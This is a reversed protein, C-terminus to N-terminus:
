KGKQPIERVPSSASGGLSSTVTIEKPNNAVQIFKGIYIGNGGSSLTGIMKGGSYYAQVTDWAGSPSEDSITAQVVLLQDKPYYDVLKIGVTNGIPAPATIGDTTAGEPTLLVARYTGNQRDLAYAVIQGKDNIANASLLWYQEGAKGILSNLNRMAKKSPNSVDAVFAAQKIAIGDGAPLYSYGVVQDTSNIGLVASYDADRMGNSLSGLDILKGGRYFFAHTRNDTLSMESHGVVHNYANVALGYSSVGGLTQLDVTPTVYREGMPPIQYLFAHTAGILGNATQSNGTVFGADNIAHAQAYPGGLTGIDVMGTLPSFVFARSDAIDAKPGSFGVVQGFTNIGNARSYVGGKLAGLDTITGGKFIAAHSVFGYPGEFTSDGVVLGSASIGFGRSELGELDQMKGDRYLFACKGKEGSMTGAVHGQINIAAPESIDM